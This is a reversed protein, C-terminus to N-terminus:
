EHMKLSYEYAAQMWHRLREAYESRKKELESRELDPSPTLPGWWAPFEMWDKGYETNIRGRDIRAAEHYQQGLKMFIRASGKAWAFVLGHPNAVVPFGYVNARIVKERPELEYLREGLDPHVNYSGFEIEPEYFPKFSAFLGRNGPHPLEALLDPVPDPAAVPRSAFIGTLKQFLLTILGPFPWLLRKIRLKFGASRRM